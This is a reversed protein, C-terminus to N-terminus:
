SASSWRKAENSLILSDLVRKVVTKDEPAFQSVAEFQLKLEDDPGREDEDFILHDASVGLAVALRKIVDLTPQSAGTEYRHTQIESLDIREALAKQTLGKKKRLAVLREPFGM